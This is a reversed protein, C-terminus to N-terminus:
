SPRRMPSLKQVEEESLRVKDNVHALDRLAALDSVGSIALGATVTPHDLIFSNM